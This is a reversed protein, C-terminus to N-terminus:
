PTPSRMSRASRTSGTSRSCSRATSASNARRGTRYQRGAARDRHPDRQRAQSNRRSGRGLGAAAGAADPRSLPRADRGSLAGAGHIPSRTNRASSPSSAPSCTRAGLALMPQQKSHLNIPEDRSEARRRAHAPRQDGRGPGRAAGENGRHAQRRFRRARAFAFVSQGGGRDSRRAAVFQAYREGRPAPGFALLAEDQHRRRPTSGCGRRRRMIRPCCAPRSRRRTTSQPSRWRATRARARDGRAASRRAAAFDARGPLRRHDFEVGVPCPGADIVMDIRGRLDALVHAASTPSVHGSRNASPAVVPGSFAALLAHAVPHAPVRVAVSDLGALALDAVGAM